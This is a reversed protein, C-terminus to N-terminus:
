SKIGYLRVTGSNPTGGSYRVEVNTQVETNGTKWGGRTFNLNSNDDTYSANFTGYAAVSATASEFINFEGSCGAITNNQSYSVMVGAGDGTATYIQNSGNYLSMMQFAYNGTTGYVKIRLQESNASCMVGHFTLKFYAYGTTPLTFTLNSGSCTQTDLLVVGGADAIASTNSAINTENTGVKDSINVM